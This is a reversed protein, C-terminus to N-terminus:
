RQSQREIPIVVALPKTKKAKKVKRERFKQGKLIPTVTGCADCVLVYTKQRRERHMHVHGFWCGHWLERLSIM